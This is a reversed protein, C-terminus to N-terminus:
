HGHNYWGYDKGGSPIPMTVPEVNIPLPVPPLIICPPLAVSNLHLDQRYCCHMLATGEQSHGQQPETAEWFARGTALPSRM